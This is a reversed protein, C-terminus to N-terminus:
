CFINEPGPYRCAVDLPFSLCLKADALKYGAVRIQPSHMDSGTLVFGCRASRSGRMKQFLDSKDDVSGAESTEM